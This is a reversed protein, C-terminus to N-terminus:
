RRGRGRHGGRRRTRDVPGGSTREEAPSRVHRAEPDRATTSTTSGRAAVAGSSGGDYGILGALRTPETGHERDEFVAVTTRISVSVRTITAADAWRPNACLAPAVPQGVRDDECVNGRTQKQNRRHERRDSPHGHDLSGRPRHVAAAAVAGNTM